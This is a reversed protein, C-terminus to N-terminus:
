AAAKKLEHHRAEYFPTLFRIEDGDDAMGIKARLEAEEAWRQELEVHTEASSFLAQAHSRYEEPTKPLSPRGRKAKAAQDHGEVVFYPNTKLVDILPVKKEVANGRPLGEANRTEIREMQLVTATAPIEVPEGARFKIGGFSTEIPDGNERPTYTVKAM